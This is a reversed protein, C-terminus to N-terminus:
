YLNVVWPCSLLFASSQEFVYSKEELCAELIMLPIQLGTNAMAKMVAWENWLCLIQAKEIKGAWAWKILLKTEFQWKGINLQLVSALFAMKM